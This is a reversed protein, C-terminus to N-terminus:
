VDELDKPKVQFEADKLYPNKESKLRDQFRKQRIMEAEKPDISVKNAEVKAKQTAILENMLKLKQKKNKEMFLVLNNLQYTYMPDGSRPDRGMYQKVQIAPNDALEMAARTELLQHYALEHLMLQHYSDIAEISVGADKVFDTIWMELLTEEVPCNQGTPVPLNNSLLPCRSAFPCDEAKCTLPAVATVGFRMNKIYKAVNAAQEESVVVESSLKNLLPAKNPEVKVLDKKSEEM